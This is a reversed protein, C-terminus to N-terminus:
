AVHISQMFKMASRVPMALAKLIWAAITGYYKHTYIILDDFYIQTALRQNQRVSAHEEHEIVADAVFHIEYGSRQLRLCIDDETFYLKFAEDFGNLSNFLQRSLMFCSDPVVEVSRTSQRDWEAYMMFRKRRNRWPFLLWGLFTYDLLLDIYRAARSGNPITSGDPFIQRSSVAGVQSHTRLYTLLTQLTNPFIVTDPNLILVYDGEAAAVGINNGGTFWSNYGPEVLKVQPFDKRVMSVSDDQSNNDVVVVEVDLPTANSYISTLCRQLEKSTNYNVIVISLDPM